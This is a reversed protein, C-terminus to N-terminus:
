DYVWRPREGITGRKSAWFSAHWQQLVKNVLLKEDTDDASVQEYAHFRKAPRTQGQINRYGKIPKEKNADDDNLPL